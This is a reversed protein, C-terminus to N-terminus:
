FREAEWDIVMGSVADVEFEYEASASCFTGEYILRGDDYDQKVKGWTVDSAKLGAFALAAAKADELSVAESATESVTKISDEADYDWSIVTGTGADIEYDYERYNKTVFEVEYVLRGDEYDTKNKIFSIDEETVGAHELAIAKAKEETLQAAFGTAAMAMALAGAAIITGLKTYKKM